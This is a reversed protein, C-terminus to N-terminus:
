QLKRAATQVKAAAANFREVAIGTIQKTVNADGFTPAIHFLALSAIVEQAAETLVLDPRPGPWCGGHIAKWLEFSNTVEASINTAM